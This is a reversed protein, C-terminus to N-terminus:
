SKSQAVVCCCSWRASEGAPHEPRWSIREGTHVNQFMGASHRWGSPLGADPYASSSASSPAAVGVRQRKAQQMVEM